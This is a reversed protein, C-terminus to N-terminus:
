ARCRARGARHTGGRRVPFAVRSVGERRRKRLGGQGPRSAERAGDGYAAAEHTTGLLSEELRLAHLSLRGNGRRAAGPALSVREPGKLRTRASSRSLLRRQAGGLRLSASVDTRALGLALLLAQAYGPSLLLPRTSKPLDVPERGTRFAGGERELRVSRSASVPVSATSRRSVSLSRPGHALFHAEGGRGGKRERQEVQRRGLQAM